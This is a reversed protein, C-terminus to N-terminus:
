SGTLDSILFLCEPHKQFKLAHPLHFSDGRLLRCPPANRLAAKSAVPPSVVMLHGSNSIVIPPWSRDISPTFVFETSAMRRM